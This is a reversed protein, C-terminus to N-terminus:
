ELSGVEPEGRAFKKRPLRAVWRPVVGNTLYDPLEHSFQPISDM